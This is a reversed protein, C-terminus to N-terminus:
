AVDAERNYVLQWRLNNLVPLNFLRSLAVAFGSPASQKNQRGFKELRREVSPYPIPCCTLGKGTMRYNDSRETQEVSACVLGVIM